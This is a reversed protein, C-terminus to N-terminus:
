KRASIRGTLIVRDTLVARGRAVLRLGAVVFPLSGALAFPLLDAVFDAFVFPFLPAAPDARAAPGARLPTRAVPALFPDTLGSGVSSAPDRLAGALFPDAVAPRGFARVRYTPVAESLPWPWAVAVAESAAV